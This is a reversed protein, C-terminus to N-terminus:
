DHLDIPVGHQHCLTQKTMYTLQSGYQHRLTKKIIYTLKSGM